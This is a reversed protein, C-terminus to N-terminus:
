STRKWRGERRGEGGTNEWGASGSSWMGMSEATGRATAPTLTRFPKGKQKGLTWTRDVPQQSKHVRASLNPANITGALLQTIEHQTNKEEKENHVNGVISAVNNWKYTHTHDTHSQLRLNELFEWKARPFRHFYKNSILSLRWALACLIACLAPTHRTFLIRRYLPTSATNLWQGVTCRCWM